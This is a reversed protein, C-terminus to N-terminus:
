VGSSRHSTRMDQRRLLWLAALLPILSLAFFIPGGRRHIYSHIMAPDVHVCLLGIVMIRFGNRFIGLPVIIAVLVARTWPRTLFLKAAIVSTIFLVWTSKMGSCEKAVELTIGPLQFVNGTKMAATGTMAFLINAAEASAIQLGNEIWDVARDPLPILFILFLMPFATTAMWKRGLALFGAAWVLCVFAFMMASLRDNQSLSEGFRAVFFIAASATTVPLTAWILSTKREKSYDGSDIYFFYSAILPILVIYSNLDSHFAFGFLSLLDRSFAAILGVILVLFATV